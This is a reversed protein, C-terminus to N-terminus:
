TEGQASNQHWSWCCRGSRPFTRAPRAHAGLHDTASSSCSAGRPIMVWAPRNNLEYGLEYTAKELLYVDLLMALEDPSAPLFTARGATDLYANLYAGCVQLQWFRAWADLAAQEAPALRALREQDFLAKGYAAYQFSRLMGAVDRLAGRKFRREGLPRSPEGEFDVIVFDDGTYLVQGLHYDGHTRIRTAHIRRGNISRFRELLRGELALLEQAASRVGAPLDDLRGRFLEFVGDAQARWSQYLSRQYLQTFPEPAFAPDDPDSALALHMEATRRGLLRASNLYAGITERALPSPEPAVGLMAATSIQADPPASPTALVREFYEGLADLTYEWADGRNAVYSQLIGLTLGGATVPASPAGVAQAPFYELAGAVAAIHSFSTRETLFRTVELDPNIGEEIRRYLKLILRNGFVVSTNSQEASGLRALLPHDAPGRLRAFVGTPQARLTTSPSSFSRGAAISDLM